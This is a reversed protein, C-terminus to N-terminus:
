GCSATPQCRCWARGSRWRSSRSCAASSARRMAALHPQARRAAGGADLGRDRLDARRARPPNFIQKSPDPSEFRTLSLIGEDVAAVTAFTPGEIKGLDLTVPLNAGSRVEKPVSLQVSQTFETPEVPLSQVGFARDPLLGGEPSVRPDKVAFATVHVNPVFKPLTFSWRVEGPQV